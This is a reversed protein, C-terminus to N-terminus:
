KFFIRIKKLFSFKTEKFSQVSLTIIIILLTPDNEQHGRRCPINIILLTPDNEQHGGKYMPHHHYAINLAQIMKKIAERICQLVNEWIEGSYGVSLNLHLPSPWRWM